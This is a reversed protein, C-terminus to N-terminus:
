PDIRFVCSGAVRGGDSPVILDTWWLGPAIATVSGDPAVTAEANTFFAPGGPTWQPDPAQNRIPFGNRDRPASVSLQFTAGVPVPSQPCGSITWTWTRQEVTVQLSDVGLDAGLVVWSTGNARAVFPYRGSAVPRTELVGPTVVRISGRNAVAYPHNVVTRGSPDLARVSVVVSDGFADVVGCNGSWCDVELTDVRQMIVVDRADSFRGLTASIRVTTPVATAEVAQYRGDGISFLAPNATQWTIRLDDSFAPDLVLRARFQQNRHILTDPVDQLSVAYTSRPDLPHVPAFAPEFCAATAVALPVWALRKM